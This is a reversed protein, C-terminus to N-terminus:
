RKKNQKSAKKQAAAEQKASEIAHRVKVIAMDIVQNAADLKFENVKAIAQMVLAIAAVRHGGNDYKSLTLQDKANKLLDVKAQVAATMRAKQLFVMAGQLQQHPATQVSLSFGTIVALTAIYLHAKRIKM